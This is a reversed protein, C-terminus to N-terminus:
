FHLKHELSAKVARCACLRALAAQLVVSGILASGKSQQALLNSATANAQLMDNILQNPSEQGSTRTKYSFSAVRPDPELRKGLMCKIKLDGSTVDDLFHKALTIQCLQPPIILTYSLRVFLFYVQHSHALKHM